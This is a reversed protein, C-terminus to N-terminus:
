EDVDESMEFVFEGGPFIIIPGGGLRGGGGGGGGVVDDDDANDAVVSRKFARVM